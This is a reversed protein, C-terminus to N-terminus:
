AIQSNSHSLHYIMMVHNRTSFNTHQLLGGSKTDTILQM